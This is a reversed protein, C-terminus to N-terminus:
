WKEENYLAYDRVPLEGNPYKQLVKDVKDQYYPYNTEKAKKAFYLCARVEALSAGCNFHYKLPDGYHLLNRAPCPECLTKFPCSICWRNFKILSKRNRFKAIVEPKTIGDHVNGFAQDYEKGVFSESLQNCFYLNGDWNIAIQTGDSGCTSLTFNQPGALQELKSVIYWNFEIKNDIVYDIAKVLCDYYDESEIANLQSTKSILDFSGRMETYGLSIANEISDKIYRMNEKCYTIKSNPQSYFIKKYEQIAKIVDDYSGRGDPYKRCANHCEKCGDLTIPLDIRDRYLQIFESVAPEFFTTGNTELILKFSDKWDSFNYTDCLQEFYKVIDNILNIHLTCEGGFFDLTIPQSLLYQKSKTFYKFINGENNARYNFLDDLLIKADEFSLVKSDKHKQYCYTCRLTCNTSLHFTIRM